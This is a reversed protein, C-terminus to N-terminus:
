LTWWCNSLSVVHRSCGPYQWGASEPLFLGSIVALETYVGGECLGLAICGYLVRASQSQQKRTINAYIHLLAASLSLVSHIYRSPRNM